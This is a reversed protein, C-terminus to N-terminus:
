ELWKKFDSVRERSVIIEDETFYNLIIKLRSNSYSIIDKIQHINIIHKRNVRFFDKPQLLEELEELNIDLLYARKEKNYLYSGKNESYFCVVEQTNIIKIHEGIKVSFRSKYNKEVKGAIAKKILEFDFNELKIKNKQYKEIANSLELNDVPKLLYDISNTKFAKLAYQDYATTFIVACNINCKEIIEFSLGDSLQIDLFLLDPVLNENFYNISEQVSHLMKLVEFGLSEIKRKLFRAAPQEDEIIIITM